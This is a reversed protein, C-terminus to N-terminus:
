LPERPPRPQHSRSSNTLLFAWPRPPSYVASKVQTAAKVSFATAAKLSFSFFASAAARFLRISCRSRAFRTGHSFHFVGAKKMAACTRAFCGGDDGSELFCPGVHFRPVFFSACGQVSAATKPLVGATTVASMFAPASKFAFSLRPRVGRCNAFLNLLVGPMTATSFFAAPGGFFVLTTVRLFCTLRCRPSPAPITHHLHFM